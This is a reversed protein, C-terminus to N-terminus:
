INRAAIGSEPPFVQSYQHDLAFVYKSPDGEDRWFQLNKILQKITEQNDIPVPRVVSDGYIDSRDSLLM